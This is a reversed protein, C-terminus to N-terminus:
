RAGQCRQITGQRGANSRRGENISPAPSALTPCPFISAPSPKGPGIEGVTTGPVSRNTGKAARPPSPPITNPFRRAPAEPPPAIPVTACFTYTRREEERAKESYKGLDDQYGPISSRPKLASTCCTQADESEEVGGRSLILGRWSTGVNRENNHSDLSLSINTRANRAVRIRGVDIADRLTLNDEQFSLEARRIEIAVADEVRGCFRKVM